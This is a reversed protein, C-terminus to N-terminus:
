FGLLEMKESFEDPSFNEISHTSEWSDKDWIQPLKRAALLEECYM